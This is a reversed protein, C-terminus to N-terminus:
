NGAPTLGRCDKGWGESWVVFTLGLDRVVWHMRLLWREGEWGKSLICLCCERLRRLVGTLRGYFTWLVGVSGMRGM